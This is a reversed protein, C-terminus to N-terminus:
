HLEKMTAANKIGSVFWKQMATIFDDASEEHRSPDITLQLVFNGSVNVLVNFIFIAREEDDQFLKSKNVSTSLITGVENMIDTMLEKIGERESLMGM